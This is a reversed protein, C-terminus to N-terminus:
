SYWGVDIIHEEEAIETVTPEGSVYDCLYWVKLMQYKSARINELMIPNRATCKVTTEEEIERIAADALSEGDNIAGGPAVFYTQSEKRLRVLLITGDKIVLGGAAIRHKIETM